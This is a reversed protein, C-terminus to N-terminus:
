FIVHEKEHKDRRSFFGGFLGKSSNKQTNRSDQDRSERMAKDVSQNPSVAPSTAPSIRYHPSYEQNPRRDYNYHSDEDMHIISGQDLQNISGFSNIGYSCESHCDSSPGSSPPGEGSFFIKLWRTM